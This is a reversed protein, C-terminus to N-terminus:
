HATTATGLSHKTRQIPRFEPKSSSSTDSLAIEAGLVVTITLGNAQAGASDAPVLVVATLMLICLMRNAM